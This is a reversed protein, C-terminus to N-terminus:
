NSCRYLLKWLMKLLSREHKMMLQVEPETNTDTLEKMVYTFGVSEYLRRADVNYNDVYLYVTDSELIDLTYKLLARASGTRRKDPKTCVNYLTSEFTRYTLYSVVKGNEVSYFHMVGFNDTFFEDEYPTGFSNELIVKVEGLIPSVLVDSNLFQVTTPKDVIEGRFSNLIWQYLSFHSNDKMDNM